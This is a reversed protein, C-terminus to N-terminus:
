GRPQVLCRGLRLGFKPYDLLYRRWLRRPEMILRYASRINYEHVWAPYYDPGKLSLQDLYGGCTFGLGVWGNRVLKLLFQEQLPAGMGVIVIGPALNTIVEVAADHDGYGDFTAAIRLGPYALSLREGAAEAVGSVGGSLGITIGNDVALRFVFPALSTSDFSLRLAPRRHLMQMAMVMGIGDPAVLDFETLAKRFEHNRSALIATAPNAFTMLWPRKQKMAATLSASVVDVSDIADVRVGVTETPLIGSRAVSSSM